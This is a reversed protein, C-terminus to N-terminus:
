KREVPRQRHIERRTREHERRRREREREIDRRPHKQQVRVQQATQRTGTQAALSAIPLLGAFLTTVLIAIWRTRKM